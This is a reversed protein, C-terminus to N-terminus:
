SRRHSARPRMARTPSIEIAGRAELLWLIRQSRSDNLHHVVLVAARRWSLAEVQAHRSASGTRRSTRPAPERRLRAHARGSHLEDHRRRRHSGQRRHLGQGSAVGSSASRTRLRVHGDAAVQPHAPRPLFMSHRAIDSIPPFATAESFHLWQLVSRPRTASRPALRGRRKRDPVGHDRTQGFLVQGGDELRSSAPRRTRSFSAAATEPWPRSSTRFASSRWCGSSAFRAPSSRTTLWCRPGGAHSKATTRAARRTLTTPSKVRQAGERRDDDSRELPCPGAVGAGPGRGPPAFLPLLPSESPAPHAM